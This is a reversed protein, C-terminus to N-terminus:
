PTQLNARGKPTAHGLARYEFLENDSVFRDSLETIALLLSGLGRASVFRLRLRLSHLVGICLLTSGVTVSICLWDSSRQIDGALHSRTHSFVTSSCCHWVCVSVHFLIHSVCPSCLCDRLVLNAGVIVFPQLLM